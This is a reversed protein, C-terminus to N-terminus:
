RKDNTQTIALQTHTHSVLRLRNSQPRFALANMQIAFLYFKISKDSNILMFLLNSMSFIFLASFNIAISFNKSQIYNCRPKTGHLADRKGCLVKFRYKLLITMDVPFQVHKKGM